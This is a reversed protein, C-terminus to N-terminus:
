SIEDLVNPSHMNCALVHGRGARTAARQARSRKMAIFYAGHLLDVTVFPECASLSFDERITSAQRNEHSHRRHRSRLNGDETSVNGLMGDGGEGSSLFRLTPRVVLWLYM